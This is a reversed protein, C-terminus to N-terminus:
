STCAGWFSLLLGLDAGNVSGDKNIDSVTFQANPGWQSLLIGLDAGNVNLDRFLDADRCTPQQCVDPIGDTNADTFQGTIIQGYDVIGDHNCDTDYELLQWCGPTIEPAFDDWNWGCDTSRNNFQAALFGSYGYNPYPGAGCNAGGWFTFTSGQDINWVWTTGSIRYLGIWLRAPASPVTQIFNILFRNESDSNVIVLHFGPASPPSSKETWESISPEELLVAYWHGNGGDEIRWQVPYNGTVCAEGRECCDPINNGNFDPLSGDHCQGYDVIGDGNCDASWEVIFGGFPCGGGCDTTAGCDPGDHWGRRYTTLIDQPVTWPLDGDPQSADWMPVFPEGTVWYWGCGPECADPQQRGGIFYWPVDPLQSRVWADEQPSVLTALYGGIGEAELRVSDWCAATRTVVRYWHGNGGDSAKWQVAQQAQAASAAFLTVVAAQILNKM